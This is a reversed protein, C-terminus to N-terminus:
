PVIMVQLEVRAAEEPWGPEYLRNAGIGIKARVGETRRYQFIATQARIQSADAIRQQAFIQLDPVIRAPPQPFRAHALIHDSLEVPHRDALNLLSGAPRPTRLIDDYRRLEVQLSAGGKLGIQRDVAM